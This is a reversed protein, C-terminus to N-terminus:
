IESFCRSPLTDLPTCPSHGALELDLLCRGPNLAFCHDRTEQAKEPLDSFFVKRSLM